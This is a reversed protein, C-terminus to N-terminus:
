KQVFRFSFRTNQRPGLFPSNTTIDPKMDVIKNLSFTRTGRLGFMILLIDLREGRITHLYRFKEIRTALYSFYELKLASFEHYLHEIISVGKTAAKETGTQTANIYDTLALVLIKQFPEVCRKNSGLALAKLM